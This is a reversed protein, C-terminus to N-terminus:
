TLVCLKLVNLIKKHINEMYAQLHAELDDTLISQMRHACVLLGLLNYLLYEFIKSIFQLFINLFLFLFRQM